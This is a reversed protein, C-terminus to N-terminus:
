GARSDRTVSIFLMGLSLVSLFFIEVAYMFCAQNDLFVTPAQGEGFAAARAFLTLLHVDPAQVM